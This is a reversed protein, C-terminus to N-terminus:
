RLTSVPHHWQNPGRNIHYRSAEVSHGVAIHAAFQPEHTFRASLHLESLTQLIWDSFSLGTLSEITKQTLYYGISSYGFQKGPPASPSLHEGKNVWNPLGSCHCLVDRIRIAGLVDASNGWHTAAPGLDADLSFEGNV